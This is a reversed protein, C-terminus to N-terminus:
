LVDPGDGGPGSLLASQRHGARQIEEILSQGAMITRYEKENFGSDQQTPYRPLPVLDDEFRNDNLYPLSSKIYRTETHKWTTLKLRQLKEVLEETRGELDKDKWVEFCAPKSVKRESPYEYWWELFGATYNTDPLVKGKRKAASTHHIHKLDTKKELDQEQEQEQEQEQNLRVNKTGDKIPEQIRKKFQGKPKKQIGELRLWYQRKLGHLDNDALPNLLGIFLWDPLVPRVRLLHDRLVEWLSSRPLEEVSEIWSALVNPNEPLNYLLFNKIIVLGNGHLNKSLILSREQFTDLITGARTECDRCMESHRWCYGDSYGLFEDLASLSLVGAGVPTIQPHSLIHVWLLKQMPDMESVNEDNWIRTDIKRYRSM